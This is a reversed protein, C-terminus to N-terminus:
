LFADTIVDPLKKLLKDVRNENKKRIRSKRHAMSLYSCKMLQKNVKFYKDM